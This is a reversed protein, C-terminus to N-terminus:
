TTKKLKMLIDRLDTLLLITSKFLIYYEDDDDDDDLNIESM